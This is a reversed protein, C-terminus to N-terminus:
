VLITKVNCFAHLGEKGLERGYGSKKIGGFPVRPDSLVQGNIAVTGVLLDKAFKNAKDINNTWIAAGLGFATDNALSLAESDQKFTTLVAVPGFVEEYWVRMSPNVNGLLIPPFHTPIRQDREFQFLLQAGKSLADKVQAELTEAIDVRALCSFYTSKDLPDGIKLSGLSHIFTETFADTISEHIILRKAALCTQGNNAMRARVAIRAAEEVNADVFVIFPDSGGLEMVTPLIYKGALAALSSGARDSGTLSVGALKRKSFLFELDDVEVFINQFLFPAPLCQKLIREILLSSQPMQPAPKILVANGSVLAPIAFRLTQWYPFNWPMVGLLLGLPEYYIHADFGDESVTQPSLFAESRQSYYHCLRICKDIEVLGQAIPKGMEEAALQSLQTKNQNLLEAILDVSKLRDRIDFTRWVSAAILGQHLIKEIEHKELSPFSANEILYYPNVSKFSM